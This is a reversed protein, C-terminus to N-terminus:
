YKSKKKLNDQFDKNGNEGNMSFPSNKIIEITSEDIGLNKLEAIQEDTLIGDKSAQIIEM